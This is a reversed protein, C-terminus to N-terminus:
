SPIPSLLVENAMAVATETSCMENKVIRRAQDRARADAARVAPLTLLEDPAAVTVEEVIEAIQGFVIKGEVFAEIAIENAASLVAPATGGRRLAEYALRLCPFRQFDPQHFTLSATVAGQKAGLLALVDIEREEFLRDPYALAYGIPLRMDPPALQAKVNGDTFIVFGHAVSNRHVLVKIREAPLSFLRSAEIVELGKNMMTASDVTNKVGMNWTPHRLAADVTAVRMTAADMDWFPGGSATLVVEAVRDPPEGILCQFLASHESDVPIIRSGSRRAAQLLLEGAAVILEKNAVAIDIGREVAAFVADFAVSGATAALVIDAGTETAISLLGQPGASAACISRPHFREAQERLLTLGRGGALGVVKFRTPHRAIVDLAQTGISGTSGLIAVHRM